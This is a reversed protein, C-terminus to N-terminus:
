RVQNSLCESQYRERAANRRVPRNKLEGIKKQLDQCFQSQLDTETKHNPDEHVVPAEFMLSNSYQNRREEASESLTSLAMMLIFSSMILRNKM